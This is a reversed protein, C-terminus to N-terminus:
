VAGKDRMSRWVASLFLVGGALVLPVGVAASLVFTAPTWHLAAALQVVLGMGGVAAARRIKRVMDSAAATM